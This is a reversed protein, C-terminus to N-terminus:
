YEELLDYEIWDEDEAIFRKARDPGDSGQDYIEIRQGNSEALRLIENIYRWSAEIQKWDAFLTHDEDFIDNLLREYAEPTNSQYLLNCSQCFDLRARELEMVDGDGPKKINFGIYVGEEPQIRIVLINAESVEDTPKFVVSVYTERNKLAKGTRIFFPVGRWRDNDIELKLAVYTETNSNPKVKEEERYGKYQGLILNNILEDQSIPKLKRILDLQAEKLSTSSNDKPKEMAVISLVQFLHNQVMDRTAGSEDYYGGRTGVGVQESATIEIRDIYKSNWSSTFLINRFRVAMINQVMEKGLYHDILYLHKKGYANMLKSQLRAANEVDTGFPKEVIVQDRKGVLDNKLLADTIIEFFSPAVAYYNHFRATPFNQRYYDKLNQYDRDNSLDLRFYFIRSSYKDFLEDNFSVRSFKKVWEKAKARYSEDDYPRRGIAVIAISQDLVARVHLNYMAPLLKRFTLDGSGGFITLVDTIKNM